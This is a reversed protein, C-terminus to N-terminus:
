WEQEFLDAEQNEWADEEDRPPEDYVVVVERGPAQAPSGNAKAEGGRRLVELFAEGFKELKSPGVGSLALLAEEDQPQQRAMERLTSDHFVCFAPQGIEKALQLRLARLAEWLEGEPAAPRPAERQPERRREARLERATLPPLSADPAEGCNDCNGCNEPHEEGFYELLMKRRCTRAECLRVLSRLKELALRKHINDAESEDIWQRQMMIDGKGFAMWADAPLGDRGARGTEQYYAEVSKPLDLHAVFRIDPKDIGLGFAITAVVILGEEHLFRDQHRRRTTADLGAHYPIATRGQENLWDAIQETKKRSLCYVIGAHRPHRRRLFRLLEHKSQHKPVITYRINPRDFGGVFARGGGLELRTIIERRTREDATATLALRPVDPFREHLVSLGLYDPRFDHGWQSVCHAEDIAFLAVPMQELLRLMRETTLREPAVYLLDLEGRRAAQEVEAAEAADLSSNLAAARVGKERLALVQDRMLAILPSVVVGVGPRLLSPIQYCLSKGGGTPMVVLAEGGATVHEIM